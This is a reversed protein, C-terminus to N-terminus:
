KALIWGDEVRLVRKRLNKLAHSVNNRFQDFTSITRYGRARVRVTLEKLSLPQKVRRLEALVAEALTEGRAGKKRLDQGAHVELLRKQIREHLDQIEQAKLRVEANLRKLEEAIGPHPLSARAVRRQRDSETEIDRKVM